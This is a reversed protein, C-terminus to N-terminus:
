LLKFKMNSNDSDNSVVSLGSVVSETNREKAHRAKLYAKNKNKTSMHTPILM